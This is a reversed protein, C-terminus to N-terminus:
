SLISSQNQYAASPHYIFLCTGDKIRNIIPTAEKSMVAPCGLSRGIYGLKPIYAPNVYDAGHM